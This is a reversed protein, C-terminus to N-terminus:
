VEECIFGGRVDLSPADTTFHNLYPSFWVGTDAGNTSLIPAYLQRYIGGDRREQDVAWQLTQSQFDLLEVTLGELPPAPSYGLNELDSLHRTVSTRLSRYSASSTESYMSIERLCTSEFSGNYQVGRPKVSLRHSERLLSKYMDVLTTGNDSYYGCGVSSPVMLDRASCLDKMEPDGSNVVIEPDVLFTTLLQHEKCWYSDYPFSVGKGIINPRLYLTLDVSVRINQYVLDIKVLQVDVTVCLPSSLDTCAVEILNLMYSSIERFSKIHSVMPNKGITAWYWKDVQAIQFSKEAILYYDDQISERYDEDFQEPFSIVVEGSIKRGVSIWHEKPICQNPAPPLPDDPQDKFSSLQYLECNGCIHETKRYWWKCYKCKRRDDLPCETDAHLPLDLSPWRKSITINLNLTPCGDILSDRHAHYEPILNHLFYAFVSGFSHGSRYSDGLAEKIVDLANRLDTLEIQPNSTSSSTVNVDGSTKEKISISDANSKLFNKIREYLKKGLSCTNLPDLISVPFDKQSVTILELNTQARSKYNGKKSTNSAKKGEM